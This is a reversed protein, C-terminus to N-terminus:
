LESLEAYDIDDELEYDFPMLLDDGEFAPADYHKAQRLFHFVARGDKHGPSAEVGTVVDVGWPEFHEIASAVNHPTLGGAIIIRRDSPLYPTAAWDFTEGSGPQAADILLADAADYEYVKDLLHDDAAFAKILFPVRERVWRAEAPSEHGHLQVASLGVQNTIEVVRQSAEDRFVGVTLIEPPIRRVIDRVLAPAVQRPSPAFIFGIADAGMAVAFLADSENTTGCIKVFM